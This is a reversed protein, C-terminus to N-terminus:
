HYWTTLSRLLVSIYLWVFVYAADCKELQFKIISQAGASTVLNHFFFFLWSCLMVGPGFKLSLRTERTMFLRECKLTRCVLVCRWVELRGSKLSLQIQLTRLLFTFNSVSCARICTIIQVLLKWVRESGNKSDAMYEIM